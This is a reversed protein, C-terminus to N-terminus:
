ARVGGKSEDDRYGVALRGSKGGYPNLLTPKLRRGLYSPLEIRGISREMASANQEDKLLPVAHRARRGTWRSREMLGLINMPFARMCLIRAVRM